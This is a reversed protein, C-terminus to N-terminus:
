SVPAVRVTIFDSPALVRDTWIREDCEPDTQEYSGDIYTGECHRSRARNEVYRPESQRFTTVAFYSSAQDRPLKRRAALAERLADPLDSPRFYVQLTFQRGGQEDSGLPPGNYSYTVEYADERSALSVQPCYMSAGSQRGAKGCYAPDSAYRVRTPIRVSKIGEFRLSHTDSGAPILASGGFVTLDVTRETPPPPDDEPFLISQGRAPPAGFVLIACVALLSHRLM